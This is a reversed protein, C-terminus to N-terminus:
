PAPGISLRDRALGHVVLDVRLGDVEVVDAVQEAVAAVEAVSRAGQECLARALRGKTWKNDHSIVSRNGDVDRLVRVQVAHPARALRAYPGSRLDVVLGEQAALVPEIVPRWRAALGGLGPLATSGSLRYAPIADRPRVLGFLASAVVLSAAARRRGQAGLTAYSLADYVVGTYRRLAPLTPASRLVLNHAVQDAPCHLAAHLGPLDTHAARELAQLVLARVPNLSPYSLATLELPRGRGGTAKSESPPLLVLVSTM